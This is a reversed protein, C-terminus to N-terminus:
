DFFSPYFKELLDYKDDFKQNLIYFIQNNKSTKIFSIPLYTPM